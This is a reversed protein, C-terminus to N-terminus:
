VLFMSITRRWRGEEAEAFAYIDQCPSPKSRYHLRYFGAIRLAPKHSFNDDGCRFGRRLAKHGQHPSQPAAHHRRTGDDGHQHDVAEPGDPRIAEAKGANRGERNGGRRCSGVGPSPAAATPSPATAPKPKPYTRAPSAAASPSPAAAATSPADIEVKLSAFGGSREPPKRKPPDRQTVPAAPESGGM